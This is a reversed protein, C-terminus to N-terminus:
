GYKEFHIKKEDVGRDILVKQCDEVVQNGGCLYFEKGKIEKMGKLVDTVRLKGGERSLVLDFKFNKYKKGLEEFEKQWFLDEEKRMGWVLYYRHDDINNQLLDLIMARLPAVGSGTGVFVWNRVPNKRVMFRGLPGLVEVEEGVELEEFFKSGIGGPSVDVLLGIREGGPVSAISYSRREGKENVKVSVYQGPKFLYEKEFGLEFWWFKKSLQVKAVVETTRKQSSM